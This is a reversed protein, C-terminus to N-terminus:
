LKIDGQLPDNLVPVTVLVTKCQVNVNLLKSCGPCMYENRETLSIPVFSRVNRDCPCTVEIGQKEFEAEKLAIIKQEEILFRSRMYESYFYFGIFQLVTLSLFSGIFSIGFSYLFWSIIASVSFTLLLSTVLKKLM